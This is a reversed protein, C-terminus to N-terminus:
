KRMLHGSLAILALVESFDGGLGSLLGRLAEGRFAVDARLFRMWGSIKKRRVIPMNESMKRDMRGTAPRKAM